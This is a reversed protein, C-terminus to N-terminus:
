TVHFDLGFRALGLRNAVAQSGANEWSTSYVPQAGGRRVGAAWAAVVQSGYGRGRRRRHTEVGAEHVEPGIRVSCCVSVVRGEVVLAMFPQGARVEALWDAFDPELIAANRTTVHVARAVEPLARPFRYAPGSWQRRVPSARGLLDLYADINAPNPALRSGALEARCLAALGDCLESDVDHRFRWEHGEPTRGLFFRPAPPGDPENVRLMRGQEDLTFLAAVRARM